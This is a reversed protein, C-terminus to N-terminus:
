RGAAVRVGIVGIRGPAPFGLVEEYATGLVNHVRAHVRVQRTIQFSAGVHGVAYGPAEFIGGFTGLTPEVDRAGGRAQLQAFADVRGRQWTVDALGQHRPRRLLADGVRFPSPAVSTGDVARVATDLWTYALRAGLGGRGRARGSLELGRARANAINDTRYRSIDRFRGVAIILDDYDNLFATAELTAAGGALAQTLGAEASRSREPRLGPNDTFALEFADPPRIGTGAAARVRTWAGRAGPTGAVLWALSVKPNVSTLSTAPFAPRPAWASPDADLADRRIHEARVGASASLRAAGEWRLEAFAGTVARGVPVERPGATIYTSRASEDLHEVGVSASLNARPAADVQVRGHTRRTDGSSTGWATRFGVAYTARDIEARLRVAAGAGGLPQLLRLGVARRTTDNRAIRDVGAFQGAPNAGFPGPTGREAEMVSATGRVDTGARHRWGLQLTGQTQASDDNSVRSGDAPAMGTYGDETYRDATLGWQWGRWAGASSVASRWAGRSGGELTGRVSPAGGQRTTIQIVGGIADSGHVASQPGRVVDIQEVDGVLVQSLDMGGGFSNARVGDVLVLTFDSEGGRPFVSTVTGAGGNRAVSMGPVLSLAAGLTFMQRSELDDRGLVTVSDPVRSLPLAVPAATVVLTEQVAQVRLVLTVPGDASTATVPASGLGPASAVLTVRRGQPVEVAFQGDADAPVRISSPAAGSVVVVADRVARGDADIVRGTLSSTSAHAVSACVLLSVLVSAARVPLACVLRM